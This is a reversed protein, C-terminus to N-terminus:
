VSPHDPALALEVPLTVILMVFLRLVLPLFTLTLQKERESHVCKVLTLLATSIVLRANSALNYLRQLASWVARMATLIAFKKPNLLRKSKQM